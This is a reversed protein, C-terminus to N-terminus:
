ENLINKQYQMWQVKSFEGHEMWGMFQNVPYVPGGVKRRKWAVEYPLYKEAIKRLIYKGYEVNYIKAEDPLDYMFKDLEPDDQYPRHNTIGFSKAIGNSMDDMDSRMATVNVTGIMKKEAIGETLKTVKEIPLNTMRSIAEEPKPLLKDLLPKYYRFAPYDYIKYLYAMILDRAYGAMSEDPGDGLVVDKEGLRALEAYMEYLPFINFHPIPRGIAKVAIRVSGEFNAEDLEVIRHELNLYQAVRIAESTEDYREGGPLSVTIAFKPKIFAALVGSDIGGSIAIPMGIYPECARRLKFELEETLFEINEQLRENM